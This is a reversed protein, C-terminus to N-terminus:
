LDPQKKLWQLPNVPKGDVRLEFYLSPNGSPNRGSAGVVGQADVRDGRAVALSSLHGYLSYAGEGHYLIVLNGYGTFQDAFAVTGEHVARVPTGEAISIDIGNRTVATGFRSSRQRGYRNVVFGPAPWALAGRFPGIPLSVNADALTGLQAITVQLKAAAAELEGTLQANLDRRADISDILANRAAVAHEIALRAAAAKDQLRGTEVAKNELTKREAALQELTTAHQQVRDRDIRTLAAATRYARGVTRLDDVSLLMRWYGAHGMKYMQVLRSEVDPRQADATDRLAAARAVTAQIQEQIGALDQEIRSLETSKLEREIELKRLDALLSREQTVLADSEKQLARIREAARKAAADAQARADPAPAQAALSAALLAALVIASSSRNGM